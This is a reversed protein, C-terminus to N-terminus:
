GLCCAGGSRALLCALRCRFSTSEPQIQLYEIPNFRRHSRSLPLYFSQLKSGLVFVSLCVAQSPNTAHMPVSILCELEMGLIVNFSFSFFFSFLSGFVSINVAFWMREEPQVRGRGWRSHSGSLTVGFFLRFEGLYLYCCSGQLVAKM